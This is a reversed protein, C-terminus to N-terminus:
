LHQKAWNTPTFTGRRTAPSHHTSGASFSVDWLETKQKRDEGRGMRRKRCHQPQYFLSSWQSQRWAPSSLARSSPPYKHAHWVWSTAASSCPASLPGTCSWGRSMAPLRQRHFCPPEQGSNTYRYGSTPVSLLQLAHSLFPVPIWPLSAARLDGPSFAVEYQLSQSHDPSIM